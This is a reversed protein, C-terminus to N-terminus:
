PAAKPKIFGSTLPKKDFTVKGAKDTKANFTIVAEAGNLSVPITINGTIPDFYNGNATDTLKYKSV